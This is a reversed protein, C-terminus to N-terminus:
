HTPHMRASALFAALLPLLLLQLLLQLRDQQQQQPLHQQLLLLQPHQLPHAQPALLSAPLAQLQQLLPPLQQLLLLPHPLHLDLLFPLLLLAAPLQCAALVQQQLLLCHLHQLGLLLQQEPAATAFPHVGVGAKTPNTLWKCRTINQTATIDAFCV